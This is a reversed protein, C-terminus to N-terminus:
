PHSPGAPSSSHRRSSDPRSGAAGQHHRLLQHVTLGSRGLPFSNPEPTLCTRAVYMTLYDVIALNPKVLEDLIVTGDWRVVSIRTLALEGDSAKCMECDVALVDCGATMPRAADDPGDAPTGVALPAQVRSHIWEHRNPDKLRLRRDQEARNEAPTDLHIPHIAYDNDRLEDVTAVLELVTTPKDQWTQAERPARSAMAQEGKPRPLPSILMSQIPSHMISNKDDGPTLVPWLHPFIAGLPKLPEPLAHPSLEVPLYGDSTQQQQQQQQDEQSMVPESAAAQGDSPGSPSPTGPDQGTVIARREEPETRDFMKKEIGPVMLVVVRRIAAYHRVSVWQPGAGGALIYLVLGQLDGIKITSQLRSHSSHTISPYNPSGRNPVKRKKTAHKSSVETWEREPSREPNLTTGIFNSPLAEDLLHGDTTLMTDLNTVPSKRLHVLTDGMAPTISPPSNRKRKRGRGMTRHHSRYRDVSNQHERPLDDVSSPEEAM